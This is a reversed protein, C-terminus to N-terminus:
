GKGRTRINAIMESPASLSPPHAWINQVLMVIIGLPIAYMAIALIADFTTLKQLEALFKPGWSNTGVGLPSVRLDSAGLSIREPIQEDM